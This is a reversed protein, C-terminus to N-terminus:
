LMAQTPEASEIKEQMLVSKRKGTRSRTLSPKNDNSCLRPCRSELMGSEPRMQHSGISGVDSQMPSPENEGSRLKAHDSGSKDMKLTSFDPNTRNVRSPAHRPNKGKNCLKPRTSSDINGNPTEQSSDSKGTRLWVSSSKKGDNLLWKQGPRKDNTNSQLVSSGTKNKLDRAYIANSTNVKPIIQRPDGHEASSMLEIPKHKDKLDNTLSPKKMSVDSRKCM